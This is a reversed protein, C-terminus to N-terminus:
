TLYLLLPSACCINARRVDQFKKLTVACPIYIAHVRSKFPQSFLIHFHFGFEAAESYPTIAPVKTLVKVPEM